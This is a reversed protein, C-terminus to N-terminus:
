LLSPLEVCDVQQMSTGLLAVLSSTQYPAMNGVSEGHM